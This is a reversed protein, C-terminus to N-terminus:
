RSCPLGYRAAIARTLTNPLSLQRRDDFGAITGVHHVGIAIPVQVQLGAIPWQEETMAVWGYDLRHDTLSTVAPSVEPHWM